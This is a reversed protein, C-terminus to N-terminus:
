GISDMYVFEEISIKKDIAGFRYLLDIYKEISSVNIKTTYDLYKMSESMTGYDLALRKAVIKVADSFNEKIFKTAKDIISIIKKVIGPHKRLFDEKVIIGSGPMDLWIEQSRVLIKAGMKKALTAYHEPLFAADVKGTILANVAMFPPMKRYVFSVNYKAEIIKALLWCPSGPGPVAVLKGDLEKVDNYENNVVLAYGHSHTMAVLKIPTGRSKLVIAPGICVLAIDIDGRSMEVALDLGTSFTKVSVNIGEEKFWEKDYAIWFAASHDNLEVAFRVSPTETISNGSTNRERVMYEYLILSSVGILIGAIFLIAYLVSARM